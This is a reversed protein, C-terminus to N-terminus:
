KAKRKKSIVFAAVVGGVLLVAGVVVLVGIWEISEAGGWHQIGDLASEDNTIVSVSATQTEGCVECTREQTGPETETAPTTVKWDGFVHDAASRTEGCVDCDVDCSHSYVHAGDAEGYLLKCNDCTAPKNCTATGGTHAEPVEAGCCEGYVALHRGADDPDAKYSSPEEVHNLPNKEGYEGCLACKAPSVCNADSVHNDAGHEVTEILVLCCGHLVDHKTADDANPVYAFEDSGHDEAEYEGYSNDCVECKALANCKADGGSCAEEDARVMCGENTCAHYHKDTTDDFSWEDAFVHNDADPDGYTMECLGCYAASQCTAAVNGEHDVDHLCVYECVTCVGNEFTHPEGVIDNDCCSFDASHTTGTQVWTFPDVHNNVDPEGYAENCVSCVAKNQCDATGGKHAEVTATDIEGCVPCEYWHNVGDNNQKTYYSSDTHRGLTMKFANVTDKHIPFTEGECNTVMVFTGEGAAANLTNLFEPSSTDYSIPTTTATSTVMAGDVLHRYLPYTNVSFNSVYNAAAGTLSTGITNKLFIIEGNTANIKGTFYNYKYQGGSNNMYGSVFGASFANTGTQVKPYAVVVDRISMSYHVTGNGWVYGAIAATSHSKDTVNACSNTVLGTNVCYYAGNNTHHEGGLRGALGGVQTGGVIDATNVCRNM